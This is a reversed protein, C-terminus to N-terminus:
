KFATYSWQHKNLNVTLWHFRDSSAASWLLDTHDGEDWKFKVPSLEWNKEQDLDATFFLFYAKGSATTSAGESSAAM